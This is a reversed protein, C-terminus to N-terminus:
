RGGAARPQLTIFRVFDGVTHIKGYLPNSREDHLSHGSRKAVEPILDFAVDDLDIRLDEQLRDGPRLPVSGGPFTTYPRLADWTARVVRPDFPEARRDFARAFTGIDEGIRGSALRRLRRNNAYNLLLCPWVAPFLVVLV